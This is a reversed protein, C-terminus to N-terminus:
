NDTPNMLILDNAEPGWKTVIEAVGQALESIIIPDPPYTMENGQGKVLGQLNLQDPFAIIKFHPPEENTSPTLSGGSMAWFIIGRGSAYRFEKEEILTYNELETLNKEPIDGIFRDLPAM